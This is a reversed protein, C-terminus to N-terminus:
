RDILLTAICVLHALWFILRVYIPTRVRIAIRWPTLHLPPFPWMLSGRLYMMIPLLVLGGIIVFTFGLLSRSLDPSALFGLGLLVTSASLLYAISLAGSPERGHVADDM